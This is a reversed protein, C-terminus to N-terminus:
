EIVLTYRWGDGGTATNRQLSLSADGMPWTGHDTAMIATEVEPALPTDFLKRALQNSWGTLRKLTPQLGGHGYLRLTLEVKHVQNQDGSALFRAEHNVPDGFPLHKRRSQCRYQDGKEQYHAGLGEDALASCTSTPDAALEAMAPASLMALIMAMLNTRNVRIPLPKTIPMAFSEPRSNLWAFREITRLDLSQIAQHRNPIHMRRGVPCRPPTMSELGISLGHTQVNM